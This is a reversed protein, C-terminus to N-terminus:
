KIIGIRVIPPIKYIDPYAKFSVFPQGAKRFVDDGNKLLYMVFRQAFEKETANDPITLGYIIPAGKVVTGDKLTLSAKAYWDKLAPNGLNLEDPLSIYKLNNQVAVSEYEFAYDLENAELLAVLEVSKPRINNPKTANILNKYLGPKKYYIEALQFMLLTRYGAPDSNPEAYGFDVDKRLLIEYWNKPTIDKAYKSKDTYCLVLKNTAFNVYWDTYQPILYQPILFSDALLVIDFDKKLETIQKVADVSGASQDEFTINVGLKSYYNKFSNEVDRIPQTLSGAHIVRLTISKKTQLPKQKYTIKITKNTQNWEVNAGISEAVFRLPALTRQSEKDIFPAVDLEIEKEDVVAIKSGLKLTIIHLDFIITITKNNPNYDIFGGFAESVFRIPVLTRGNQIIPKTDLTVSKFNVTAVSKGITLEIVCDSDARLLNISYNFCLSILLVFVLFVNAVKKM